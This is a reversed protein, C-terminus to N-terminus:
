APAVRTSSRLEVDESPTRFLSMSSFVEHVTEVEQDNITKLHRKRTNESQQKMWPRLKFYGGCAFVGLWLVLEVSYIVLGLISLTPEFIVSVISTIDGLADIGCFLFSIGHVSRHKWIALYQELVGLALFLAALVAMLTLPWDVSRALGARLAFVLGAEIGGLVCALPLVVRLAKKLSWKREYYYCQVWTVLSLCTLIQPQVQLAINLNSSINYVGLWIGAGVWFAMFEPSLGEASHRRWNLIIQPTLQVSWCVAGIVGFADKISPVDM